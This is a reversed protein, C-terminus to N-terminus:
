ISDNALYDFIQVTFNKWEESGVIGTNEITKHMMEFQGINKYKFNIPYISDKRQTSMVAIRSNTEKILGNLM